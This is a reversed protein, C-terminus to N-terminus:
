LWRKREMYDELDAVYLLLEQIRNNEISVEGDNDVETFRKTPIPITNGKGSKNAFEKVCHVVVMCLIPIFIEGGVEISGREMALNQGLMYMYYPLAIEMITAMYRMNVQIFYVVEYWADMTIAGVIELFKKVQKM